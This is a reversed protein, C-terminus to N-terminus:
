FKQLLHLFREVGSNYPFLPLFDVPHAVVVRTVSNGTVRAPRIEVMM